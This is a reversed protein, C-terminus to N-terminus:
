GAKASLHDNVGLVSLVRDVRENWDCRGVFAVRQESTIASKGDAARRVLEVFTEPDSCFAVVPELSELGKIKSAVVPKGSALYEYLKLPNMSATFDNAVHPMICVDAHQLYAPIASFPRRGIFHINKLERLSSFHAPNVVQGILVLSADPMERAIRRLTAVDVREQLIGVYEIIPRPLKKLEAPIPHSRAFMQVDVGNPLWHVQPHTRSFEQAQTKSVTFIIDMVATLKQYAADLTKRIGQKQPHFRWDDIADFVSLKEELHGVHDVMLPNAVWLVWNDMGLNRATKRIQRRLFGDHLRANARFLRDSTQEKPFLRFHDLTFVNPTVQRLAFWLGRQRFEGSYGDTNKMRRWFRTVISKPTSIILIKGVEPRTGLIKSLQACRTYFGDAQWNDWDNFGFIVLNLKPEM